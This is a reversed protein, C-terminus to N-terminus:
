RYATRYGTATAVAGGPASVTVDIKVAHEADIGNWRQPNVSVSVRYGALLPQAADSYPYIGDGSFRDYDGVIHYATRNKQTVPEHAARAVFDRSEIEELLSNAAEVAQLRPLADASNSQNMALLIGASATGVIVIYMVLEILSAGRQTASISM